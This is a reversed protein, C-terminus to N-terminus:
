ASSPMRSTIWHSSNLRTSKRDRNRPKVTLAVASPRKTAWYAHMLEGETEQFRRLVDQYRQEGAGNHGGSREWEYHARVLQPFSVSGAQQTTWAEGHATGATTQEVDTVETAADM